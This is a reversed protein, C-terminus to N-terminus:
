MGFIYKLILGAIVTSVIGGIFGVFVTHRGFWDLVAQTRIRPFGVHIRYPSAYLNVLIDKAEQSFRPQFEKNVEIIKGQEKWKKVGADFLSFFVDVEETEPQIITDRRLKFVVFNLETLNNEKPHFHAIYRDNHYDFEMFSFEKRKQRSFNRAGILRFLKKFKRLSDRMEGKAVYSYVTPEHLMEYGICLRTIVKVIALVFISVVFLSFGEAVLYSTTTPVYVYKPSIQNLLGALLPSFAIPISNIIFLNPTRLFFSTPLAVAFVLFCIVLHTVNQGYLFPLLYLLIGLVVALAIGVTIVARTKFELRSEVQKESM